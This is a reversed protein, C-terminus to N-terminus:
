STLSSKWCVPDYCVSHCLQVQILRRVVELTTWASLCAQMYLQVQILRTVAELPNEVRESLEWSEGRRLNHVIDGERRFWAPFQRPLHDRVQM